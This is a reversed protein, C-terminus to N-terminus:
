KKQKKEVRKYAFPHFIVRSDCELGLQFPVPKKQSASLCYPSILLFDESEALAARNSVSQTLKM